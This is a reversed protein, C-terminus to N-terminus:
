HELEINSHGKLGRPWWAGINGGMQVKKMQLTLSSSTHSLVFVYKEVLFSRVDM